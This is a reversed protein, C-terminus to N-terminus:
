LKVVDGIGIDKLIKNVKQVPRGPLKNLVKPMAAGAALQLGGMFWNNALNESLITGWGRDGLLPERNWVTGNSRGGSLGKVIEALTMNPLGQGPGGAPGRGSGFWDTTFFTWANNNFMTQTVASISVYSAALPILKVGRSRSRRRKPKARRRAM